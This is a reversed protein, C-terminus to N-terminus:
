LPMLPHDLFLLPLCPSTLPCYPPTLYRRPLALARCRTMLLRCFSTLITISNGLIRYLSFFIPHTLTLTHCLPTLHCNIPSQRSNSLM